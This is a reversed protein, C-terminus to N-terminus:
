AYEPYEAKVWDLMARRFLLGAQDGAIVLEEFDIRDEDLLRQMHQIAWTDEDFADSFLKQTAIRTAPDGLGVDKHLSWWYHATNRTEPTVFHMVYTSVEFEVEGDQDFVLLPSYGKWVGPSLAVGGNKNLVRHGEIRAQLAPAYNHKLREWNDDLRHCFVGEPGHGVEVPLRNYHEGIALSNAHLYSFHTLDNLNELLLLYNGDLHKVGHVHDFREDDLFDLRPLLPACDADEDGMWIFVFPGLKRVPYRRLRRDPIYDQCPIRAISGDPRYEMGHYRCVINDGRVASAALPFSRHLCRNQLAVLQGDETRYFVISRELLTKAQPSRGFEEDLGAVYWHNYVLPLQIYDSVSRIPSGRGFPPARVSSTRAESVEGGRRRSIPREQLAFTDGMKPRMGATCGTEGM